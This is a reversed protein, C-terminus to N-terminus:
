GERIHLLTFSSIQLIFSTVNLDLNLFPDKGAQCLPCCIGEALSAQLVQFYRNGQPLEQQKPKGLLGQWPSPPLPRIPLLLIQSLKGRKVPWQPQPLGLVEM